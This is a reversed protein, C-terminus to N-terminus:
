SGYNPVKATASVVFKIYMGSPAHGPVGCVILYSGAPAAKFDLVDTGGTPLGATVENTYARAIAPADPTLPLPFKNALVIASHPIADKNEFPMRVQWGVPVTITLDGRSRGNFNMGGNASGLAAILKITVRKAAANYTMFENVVTSDARAAHGAHVARQTPRGQARVGAGAAVVAVVSSAVVLVTARFGAM